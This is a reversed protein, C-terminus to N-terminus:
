TTWQDREEWLAALFGAQIAVAAAWPDILLLVLLLLMM